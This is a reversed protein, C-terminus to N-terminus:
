GQCFEHCIVLHAFGGLDGRGEGICAPVGADGGLEVRWRPSVSLVGSSKAQGRSHGLDVLKCSGAHEISLLTVLVLCILLPCRCWLETRPVQYLEEGFIRTGYSLGPLEIVFAFAWELDQFVRAEPGGVGVPHIERSVDSHVRHSVCGFQFWRSIIAVGALDYGRRWWHFDVSVFFPLHLLHEIGLDPVLLERVEDFPPAVVDGIPAVGLVDVPELWDVHEVSSVGM